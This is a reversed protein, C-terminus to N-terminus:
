NSFTEVGPRTRSTTARPTLDLPTSTIPVRIADSLLALQRHNYEASGKIAQEVESIEKAKKRLYTHLEEIARKM